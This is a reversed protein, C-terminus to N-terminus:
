KDSVLGGARETVDDGATGIRNANVALFALHLGLNASQPVVRRVRVLAFQDIPDEFSTGNVSAKEKIVALVVGSGNQTVQKRFAAQIAIM